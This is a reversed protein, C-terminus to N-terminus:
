RRNNLSNNDRSSKGSGKGIMSWSNSSRGKGKGNQVQYPTQYRRNRNSQDQDHDIDRDDFKVRAYRPNFPKVRIDNESYSLFRNYDDMTDTVITAIFRNDVSTRTEYEIDGFVRKFTEEDPTSVHLKYEREVLIFNMNRFNESLSEVSDETTYILLDNGILRMREVNNLMGEPFSFRITAKSTENTAKSLVTM